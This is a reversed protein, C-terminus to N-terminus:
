IQKHDWCKKIHIPNYPMNGENFVVTIWGKYYWIICLNPYYSANWWTGGGEILHIYINLYVTYIYMYIWIEKQMLYSNEHCHVHIACVTIKFLDLFKIHMQRYIVHLSSLLNKHKNKILENYNPKAWKLNNISISVIIHYTVKISFFITAYMQLKIVKIQCTMYIYITSTYKSFDGNIINNHLLNSQHHIEKKDIYSYKFILSNM